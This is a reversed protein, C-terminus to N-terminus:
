TGGDAVNDDTALDQDLVTSENTQIQRLNSVFRRATQFLEKLSHTELDICAEM